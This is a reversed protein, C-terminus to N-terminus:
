CAAGIWAPMALRQRAGTLQLSALYNGVAKYQGAKVSYGIRVPRKSNIDLAISEGPSGSRNGGVVGRWVNRCSQRQRRSVRPGVDHVQRSGALERRLCQITM